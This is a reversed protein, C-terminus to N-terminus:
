RDSRLIMTPRSLTSHPSRRSDALFLREITAGLKQMLRLITQSLAKLSTIGHGRAAANQKSAGGAQKDCVTGAVPLKDLRYTTDPQQRACRFGGGAM